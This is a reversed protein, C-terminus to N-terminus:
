HLSTLCPRQGYMAQRRLSFTAVYEVKGHANRPALALDQIIANHPDGPSLEGYAKGRLRRYASPGAENVPSTDPHLEIRVVAAPASLSALLLAAFVRAKAIARVM